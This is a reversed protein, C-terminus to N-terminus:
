IDQIKIAQGGHANEESTDVLLIIRRHNQHLSSRRRKWDTGNLSLSQWSLNWLLFQGQWLVFIIDYSELFFSCLRPDPDVSFPEMRPQQFTLLSHTCHKPYFSLEVILNM